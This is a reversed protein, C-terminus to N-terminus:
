SCGNYYSLTAVFNNFNPAVQKLMINQTMKQKERLPASSASSDASGQTGQAEARSFVGVKMICHRYYNVM